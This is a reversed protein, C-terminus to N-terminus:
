FAKPLETLLAYILFGITGIIGIGAMSIKAIMTFEERTPKRALRLVRLYEEINTSPVSIGMDGVMEDLDLKDKIDLKNKLQQLKRDTGNTGENM